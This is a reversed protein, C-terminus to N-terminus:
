PRRSRELATTTECSMPMRMTRIWRSGSNGVLRRGGAPAGIAPAVGPRIGPAALAERARAGTQPPRHSPGFLFARAREIVEMPLTRRSMKILRAADREIGLGPVIRGPARDIADALRSRKHDSLRIPSPVPQPASAIDLVCAIRDLLAEGPAAASPRTLRSLTSSAIGIRDALVVRRRRQEPGPGAVERLRRHLVLWDAM